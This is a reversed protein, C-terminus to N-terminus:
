SARAAATRPRPARTGDSLARLARLGRKELRKWATPLREGAERMRREQREILRGAVLSADPRGATYALERLRRRAVVADHHRGLLEQTERAAEIFRRAHGGGVLEATYRARKLRVRRKHLAGNSMQATLPGRACLRRIERAAIEDVTRGNDRAPPEVSAAAVSEVLRDFRTSELEVALRRQAAAREEVLPRLLRTAVVSDGGSLTAADARLTGVLMDLDRVVGLRDGLWELEARLSRVWERDLMPQTAALASRLRRVGVRLEHVAAPDGARVIPALRQLRALETEALVRLGKLNGTEASSTM